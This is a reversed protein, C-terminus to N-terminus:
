INHYWIYGQPDSLQKDIIKALRHRDIKTEKEAHTLSEYYDVQGNALCMRAIPYLNCEPINASYSWYYGNMTNVKGICCAHINRHNIGLTLEIENKSDWRRIFKHTYKHYQYVPYKKTSHLSMKKRMELTHKKNYYPNGEGKFQESVSKRDKYYEPVISYHGGETFNYGNPYISNYEKIFIKEMMDLEEIPCTFIISLTYPHLRLLCDIRQQGRLHQNHRILLSVRTQGIYVKGCCEYKYIFGYGNEPIYNPIECM